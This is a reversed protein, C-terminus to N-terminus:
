RVLTNKQLSLCINVYFAFCKYFLIPLYDTNYINTATKIYPTTNPSWMHMDEISQAM